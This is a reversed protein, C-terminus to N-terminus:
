RREHMEERTLHPADPALPNAKMREVMRALIRKREEPDPEGPPEVNSTRVTLEVEAGDPLDCPTQPIFAGNRYIAKLSQAM